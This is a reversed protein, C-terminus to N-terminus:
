LFSQEGLFARGTAAMRAFASETLEPFDNPNRRRDIIWVQGEGREYAFRDGGGPVDVEVTLPAYRNFLALGEAMSESYAGILGGLPMASLPVSEGFHLALAPDGCLERGARMLAVYAAFPVRRDRDELESPDVGSRRLLVDRSAGRSIAFELLTRFAGASVTLDRM